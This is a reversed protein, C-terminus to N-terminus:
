HAFDDKGLGERKLMNELVTIDTDIDLAQDAFLADLQKKYAAIATDLMDDIKKITGGINEGEYGISYMRDYANLLKITTPLYYNLFKKVKPLDNPDDIVDKVIKDSLDIITNIKEKIDDKGISDRLRTMESIALKGDEIVKDIESNGTSVPEEPPQIVEVKTPFKIKLLLYAAASLVIMIIFHYLKYLPFFLCYIAWMIAAGYVPVVSPHKIKRM